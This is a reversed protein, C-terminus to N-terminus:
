GPRLTKRIEALTEAVAEEIFRRGKEPDTHARPDQGARVTFDPTPSGDFTDGDVVAHDVNYLVGKAPLRALDVCSPWESALM